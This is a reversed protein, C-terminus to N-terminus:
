VTNCKPLATLSLIYLRFLRKIDTKSKLIVGILMAFHLQLYLAYM